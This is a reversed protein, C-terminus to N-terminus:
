TQDVEKVFAHDSKIILHLLTKTLCTKLWKRTSFTEGPKSPSQEQIRCGHPVNPVARCIHINIVWKFIAEPKVVLKSAHNIKIIVHLLTTTLRANLSHNGNPSLKAPNRFRDSTELMRYVHPVNPMTRCIHINIVSKFVALFSM